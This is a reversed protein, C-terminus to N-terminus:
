RTYRNPTVRVRGDRLVSAALLAAMALVFPFLPSWGLSSALSQTWSVAIVVGVALGARDTAWGIAVVIPLLLLTADYYLASPAAVVVLPALAYWPIESWKRTVLGYAMPLGVALVVGVAVVYSWVSVGTLNQIWGLASIMLHGNVILNLDGFASVAEIWVIVWDFGIIASGVGFLIVATAASALVSKWRRSLILIGIVLIGFQPKYLLAAAAVGAAVPRDDHDFRAVAALGLLTFTANQGGLVSRLVPYSAISGVTAVGLRTWGDFAGRVFPRLAAIAGVLAAIALFSHVAYAAGYPLWAIGAYAVATYPPYAFYLLSDDEFSTAQVSKQTEVDYLDSGSGDLVISGAGYFSPFDGGYRESGSQAGPSSVATAVTALVITAIVLWPGYRVLPSRLTFM